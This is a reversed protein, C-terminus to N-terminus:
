SYVSNVHVTFMSIDTPVVFVIINKERADFSDSFNLFKFVDCYKEVNFQTLSGYTCLKSIYAFFAKIERQFERFYTVRTRM